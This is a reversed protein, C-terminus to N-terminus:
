AVVRGDKKAILDGPHDAILKNVIEMIEAQSSRQLAYMYCSDVYRPGEPAGYRPAPNNDFKDGFADQLLVVERDSPTSGLKDSIVGEPLAAVM